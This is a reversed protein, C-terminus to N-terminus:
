GPIFDDPAMEFGAFEFAPAVTCGVLTWAGFSEASQWCNAPVVIQPREGAVLDTGLRHDEVTGGEAAISLRLPAGCYHHWVEAADVRHWVSREGAALLFYIASSHARGSAPEGDRFTERFHGGEPHPSLELQRIVDAATPMVSSGSV